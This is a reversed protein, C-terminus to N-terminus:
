FVIGPDPKGEEVQPIELKGGIKEQVKSALLAGYSGHSPSYEYFPPASLKNALSALTGLDPASPEWGAMTLELFEDGFLIKALTSM